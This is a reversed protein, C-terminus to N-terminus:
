LRPLAFIKLKVVMARFIVALAIIPYREPFNRGTIVYHTILATRFHTHIRHHDHVSDEDNARALYLEFPSVIARRPGDAVGAIGPKLQQDLGSAIRRFLFPICPIQPGPVNDALSRQALRPVVVNDIVVFKNFHCFVTRHLLRAASAMRIVNMM